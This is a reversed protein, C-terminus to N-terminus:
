KNRPDQECWEKYLNVKRKEIRAKEQLEELTLACLVTDLPIGKQYSDELYRGLFASGNEALEHMASYDPYLEKVKKILEKTYAM